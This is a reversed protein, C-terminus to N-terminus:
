CWGQHLSPRVKSSSHGIYHKTGGVHARLQDSASLCQGKKIKAKFEKSCFSCRASKHYGSLHEHLQNLEDFHQGCLSCEWPKKGSDVGRNQVTSLNKHVASVHSQLAVRSEFADRSCHPCRIKPRQASPTTTTSSRDGSATPSSVPQSTCTSMHQALGAMNCPRKSCKPCEPGGKKVGGVGTNPIVEHTKPQQGHFGKQHAKVNQISDFLTGCSCQFWHGRDDCHIYLQATTAFAQNCFCAFAMMAPADYEHFPNYYSSLCPPPHSHSLFSSTL